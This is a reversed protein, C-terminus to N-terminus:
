SLSSLHAICRELERIYEDLQKKLEANTDTQSLNTSVIIGFDKSKLVKKESNDLKKQLEKTATQEKKLSENLDNNTSELQAIRRKADDCVGKLLVVKRELQEVLAVIQHESIM